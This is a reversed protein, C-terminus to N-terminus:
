VRKRKKPESTSSCSIIRIGVVNLPRGLHLIIIFPERLKEVVDLATVVRGNGGDGLTDELPLPTLVSFM